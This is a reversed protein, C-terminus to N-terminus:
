LGRRCDSSANPPPRCRALGGYKRPEVRQVAILAVDSARSALRRVLWALDLSAFRVPGTAGRGQSWSLPAELLPRGLRDYLRVHFNFNPGHRPSESVTWSVRRAARDVAVDLVRYIGQLESADWVAGKPLEDTALTVQARSEKAPVDGRTEAASPQSVLHILAPLASAFLWPAVRPSRGLRGIGLLARSM